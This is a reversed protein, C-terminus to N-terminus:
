PNLVWLNGDPYIVITINDSISYIKKETHINWPTSCKELETLIKENDFIDVGFHSIKEVLEMKDEPDAFIWYEGYTLIEM